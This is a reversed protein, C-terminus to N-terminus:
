LHLSEDESCFTKIDKETTRCTTFPSPNPNATYCDGPAAVETETCQDTIYGYITIGTDGVVHKVLQTTDAAGPSGGQPECSAPFEDSAVYEYRGQAIDGLAQAYPQLGITAGSPCRYGYESIWTLGQCGGVGNCLKPDWAMVAAPLLALLATKAYM